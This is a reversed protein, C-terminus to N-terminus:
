DEAVRIRDSIYDSSKKFRNEKVRQELINVIQMKQENSVDFISSMAKIQSISKIQEKGSVIFNIYVPLGYKRAFRVNQNIRGFERLIYKTRGETFNLSFILGINREKALKCLVQNLGSNFHHIFDIKLRSISNQSDALFDIQTNELFFRNIKNTGGFGIVLDFKQKLQNIIGVSSNELKEISVLVAFFETNIKERIERIKRLQSKINEKGNLSLRFIIVPIQEYRKLESMLFECDSNYEVLTYMVKALIEKKIFM